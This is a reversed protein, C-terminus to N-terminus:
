RQIRTVHGKLRKWVSLLDASLRSEDQELSLYLERLTKGLDELAEARTDGLGYEDLDHVVAAYGNETREFCVEFPVITRLNPDIPESSLVKEAVTKINPLPM